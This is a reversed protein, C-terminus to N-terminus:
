CDAGDRIVSIGPSVYKACLKERNREAIRFANISVADLASARDLDFLSSLAVLAMPERMLAADSVGSSVVIPIKFSGAIAVERRLSALLGARVSGETVLLPRIDVEFGAIAKSALEAESLDFFRQRSNCGAFNLLDVRRDKAAQRAITKSDCTVTILEYKRRLKRLCGTLEPVSRTRLDLRNLVDMGVEEGMSRLKKMEDQGYNAPTPVAVLRYGLESAREFMQSVQEADRLDPCLHMDAYLRKM